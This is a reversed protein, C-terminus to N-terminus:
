AIVIGGGPVVLCILPLAAISPPFAFGPFARTSSLPRITNENLHLCSSTTIALATLVLDARMAM